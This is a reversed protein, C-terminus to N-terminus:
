SVPNPLPVLIRKRKKVVLTMIRTVHFVVFYLLVMQLWGRILFTAGHVVSEFLLFQFFATLSLVGCFSFKFRDPSVDKSDVKAGSSPRFLKDNLYFIPIVIVGLLLLYWWGFAAMGTGAMHGVRLGAPTGYGGSLVYLYDGFSLLLTGEKDVDLNFLKILPDPLAAILQDLSYEQMDPDYEGVKSYTILNSDNFKINSFRATFLNDLYREDWDFDMSADRDDEKRKEIAEKDGLADLTLMILEGPPIDQVRDSQGRVIIMAVGLDTLPGSLIWGVLGVIVFNRFTFIKTKFIGLLLGLIYAFAPTTLGFMFAGRSNRAISIAFLLVAYAIIMLTYGRHPKNKNGFLLGLPIFFPAYMFPVLAQVAKDGPDGTVEQGIEPAAFHVYFSSAMGIFGIIWLQLYSPPIFFGAKEMLSVSRNPTVRMLFRYLAHAITLVLLAATAHFFVEEPLELNNILPKNELTTFLLPFYFQSSTFGLIMFSSVLYKELMQKKLWITSTVLWAFAVASMAIINIIDGFFVLQYIIAIFLVAWSAMIAQKLFPVGRRELSAINSIQGVM